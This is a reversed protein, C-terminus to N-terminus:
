WRLWYTLIVADSSLTSSPHRLRYLSQFAPRRLQRLEFGSIALIKIGEVYDLGARPDM